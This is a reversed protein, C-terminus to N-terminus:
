SKVRVVLRVQLSILNYVLHYGLHEFFRSSGYLVGWLTRDIDFHAEIKVEGDQLHSATAPFEIINSIGRMEFVGQVRFNPLSSPVEEIQKASTITFSAKPFMRVFFFDESMLHAILSPQLTDGELDINKISTMDMEFMGKIKGNKIGLGGSSLRLTGHHTTSRNRGSWHIISQECDVAYHTDKTPLAPEVRELVGADEGELEFGSVKWGKLGDELVSVNLYGAGVLKEAATAAELSKDNAGYVVIEADKGPIIGAATDLFVIEYVCMNTAGPLHVAKFHDDVLVDILVIPKGDKLRDHLIKSSMMKISM